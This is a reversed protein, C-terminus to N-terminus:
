EDKEQERLAKNRELNANRWKRSAEKACSKCWGNHGDKRTGNISFEEIDLLTDCHSCRKLGFSELSDEKNTEVSHSM